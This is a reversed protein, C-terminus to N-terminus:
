EEELKENITMLFSILIILLVIGILIIKWIM